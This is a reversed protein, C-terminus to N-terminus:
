WNEKVLDAGKEGIMISPANTNGRTISPMISADVVRLGEIGHVKLQHDVVAMEDSGMKCTGVPHYLYECTERIYASIEEDSNLKREPMFNKTRYLDFALASLIKDAIRFGKILTQRDEEEALMNQDILPYDEQSNSSLKIEGRSKPKILIPGHSIGNGKPRVFGHDLFYAPGFHFQLDPASLDPRTKVFGGAEALISTLPGKKFLLWKLFNLPTEITDLTINKGCSYIVPIVAHDQLNQGVGPLHHVVKIGKEKLHEVDGIGSLMLLQPSNIAGSSLIVEHKAKEVKREGNLKFEVGIAKARAPEFTDSVNARNEIIIKTVLANTIVKLNPRKMAPLLFARATSHRKGNKQTCQFIGFGQPNNGNFDDTIHYSCEQAAKLYINTLKNPNIQNSVWMPGDVGHLENSFVQNSESKKFYPLVDEFKWGSNEKGWEDYDQPFGRIYIMANISSSGGLTKGRPVFLKRNNLPKQPVTEYAWDVETKFLNSFAAPISIKMSKDPGGAELLLVKIKPNETLRNALVCGASGAGIIIYDFM